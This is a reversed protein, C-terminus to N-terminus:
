TSIRNANRTLFCFLCTVKTTSQGSRNSVYGMRYLANRGDTRGVGIRDLSSRGDIRCLESLLQFEVPTLLKNPNGDTPFRLTSLSPCNCFVMEGIQGMRHPFAIEQLFHNRGFAYEEIHVSPPLQIRELGCDHFAGCGIEQLTNPLRIDTLSSCSRFAWDEILKLNDNMEVHLLLKCSAFVANEIETVLPPIVIEHIGTEEFARSDIQRVSKPLRICHLSRCGDFCRFGIRALEQPLEVGKLSHCDFFALKPIEKMASDIQVYTIRQRRQMERTGDWHYWHENQENAM